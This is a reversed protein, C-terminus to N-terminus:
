AHQMTARADHYARHWFVQRVDPGPADYWYNVYDRWQERYYACTLALFAQQLPRRLYGGGRSPDLVFPGGTWARRPYTGYPTTVTPM